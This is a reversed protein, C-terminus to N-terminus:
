CITAIGNGTVSGFFVGFLVYFGYSIGMIIPYKSEIYELTIKPICCEKSKANKLSNENNISNKKNRVVDITNKVLFPAFVSAIPIRCFSISSIFLAILVTGISLLSGIAAKGANITKCGTHQTILNLSFVSIFTLIPIGIWLIYKFGPIKNKFQFLIIIVFLLFIGIPISITFSDISTTTNDPNSTTTNDPNSM